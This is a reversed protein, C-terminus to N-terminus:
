YKIMFYEGTFYKKIRVLFTLYCNRFDILQGQQAVVVVTVENATILVSNSIQFATELASDFTSALSEIDPNMDITGYFLDSHITLELVTDEVDVHHLIHLELNVGKLHLSSFNM